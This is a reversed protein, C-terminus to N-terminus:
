ALVLGDERLADALAAAYRPEVVLAGSFWLADETVSERLADATSRRLPRFIFISGHNEIFIDPDNM